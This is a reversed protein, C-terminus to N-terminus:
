IPRHAASMVAMRRHSELRANHARMVRIPHGLLRHFNRPGVTGALPCRAAVHHELGSLHGAAFATIGALIKVVEFGKWGVEYGGRCTDSVISFEKEHRSPISVRM